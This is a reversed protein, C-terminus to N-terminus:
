NLLAPMMLSFLLQEKDVFYKWCGFLFQSLEIEQEMM